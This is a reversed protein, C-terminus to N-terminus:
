VETVTEPYEISHPGLSLIFRSGQGVTSEARIAGGHLEVLRRTIGLGLGAGKSSSSTSGGVQHFEDFIAELESEPIGIGTDGVCFGAAGERSAETIWVRGSEPTFKVANSFLNYLVQKFRTRDARISMGPPVQNDIAINKIKALPTIVSLVEELAETPRFTELILDVRGAEIRSIDLLDNVMALLHLAGEQINTVFRPYPPPLPGASQEGLLDSYGVIANLPTRLEHSIRTLFDSKMRSMREVERNREELEATTRELQAAREALKARNERLAEEAQKRETIDTSIACVAYIRGSADRLPFKNALFVHQRGDALDAAEEIQIPEGTEAVGRDHERYSEARERTILDFDTKGRLEERTVGLLRAFAHNATIFRGELDKVFVVGPSGDIIDQLQKRSHRVAEEGKKRDSIDLWASLAADEGATPLIVASLLATFPEGSKRLLTVERGSISGKRRLEEAYRAREELAPWTHLDFTSRGIADDRSHGMMAQWAENVDITVGDEIRTIALAAPNTAFAQAFKEESARLKEQAQQRRALNRDIDRAGAVLVILLLGAGCAMVLGMGRAATAARGSREELLSADAARMAAIVDRIQDMIRKGRDSAIVRLAAAAAGSRQLDITEKLEALKAAVLPRLSVIRAQQGPDLTLKGLDDLQGPIARLATNYPELYDDRGTLIYGRQATEADKLESFLSETKTLLERTRVSLSEREAFRTWTGFFLAGEIALLLIAAGLWLQHPKVKGNTVRGALASGSSLNMQEATQRLAPEARAASLLPARLRGVFFSIIVGTLFFLALGAAANLDAMALSNRPEVYFWDVALSSIATAVLGPGRGGYRSAVIIAIVFALYPAQSGLMPDLAMRVGLAALAAMAAGAYRLVVSEDSSVASKGM